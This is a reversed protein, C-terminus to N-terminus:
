IHCDVITIRTDEDEGIIFRELYNSYWDEAEEPTEDSMGCWGVSGCECWIGDSTVVAYTSFGAQRKAYDERSKYFDRYYQEKYISFPKEEGDELPKHEVVINWFRLAKEYVEQDPSFDIDGIRASNAREGNKLKLTNEWRGGEVWWDWRADENATSYLNGKKDKIYGEAMYEWCEQDSKDAFQHYNKRVYDIAEQRTYKIYPARTHGEYYPELLEDVSLSDDTTFVAVNFHSM